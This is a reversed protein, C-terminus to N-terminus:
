SAPPLEDLNRGLAQELRVKLGRFWSPFPRGCQTCVFIKYKRHLKSNSLNPKRRCICASGPLLYTGVVKGWTKILDPTYGEDNMFNDYDHKTEFELVVIRGAM